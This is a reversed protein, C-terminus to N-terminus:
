YRNRMLAVMVVMERENKVVREEGGDCEVTIKGTAYGSSDKTETTREEGASQIDEDDWGKDEGSPSVL